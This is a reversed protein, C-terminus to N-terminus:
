ESVINLYSHWRSSGKPLCFGTIFDREDWEFKPKGGRGQFLVFGKLAAAVTSCCSWPHLSFVSCLLLGVLATWLFVSGCQHDPSDCSLQHFSRGVYIDGNSWDSHLLLHPFVHILHMIERLNSSILTLLIIATACLCVFMQWTWSRQAWQQQFIRGPTLYHLM